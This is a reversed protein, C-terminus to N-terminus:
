NCVAKSICAIMDKARGDIMKKVADAEGCSLREEANFITKKPPYDIMKLYEEDFLVGEHNEQLSYLNFEKKGRNTKPNLYM